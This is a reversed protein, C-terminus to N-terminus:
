GPSGLHLPSTHVQLLDHAPVTDGHGLLCRALAGCANDRVADSSDDMLPVVAVQLLEGVRERTAEPCHQMQM